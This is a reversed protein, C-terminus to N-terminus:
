LSRSKSSSPIPGCVIQQEEHLNCGSPNMESTEGGIWIFGPQKLNGPIHSVGIVSEKTALSVQQHVSVRFERFREPARKLIDSHLREAQRCSGRIQTRVNFPEHSAQLLLAQLAHDEESLFREMGGCYAIHIDGIGGYCQSPVSGRVPSRPLSLRPVTLASMGALPQSQLLTLPRDAPDTQGADM